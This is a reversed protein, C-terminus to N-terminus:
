VFNFAFGVEADFLSKGGYNERCLDCFGPQASSFGGYYSYRGLATFRGVTYNAQLTGRWDPREDQIGIATVSDLLGPETSGADILVQPLPDVRVIKNKTYNVSANLDLTSGASSPVRLNATLDVGQTKTDLGNTFYQVGQINGFGAASLIALTAADDFTAGLLIRHNIKIHFYDATITLNQTPSVAMGGSFNIATEDRLPKAGLALSAPHDVPFIGLDIFQGAIVNTVVKSFGVQSLGPARFGSSVAGRLTLRKSPQFRVAAKGTVRSGFDSYREFRGAVNALVQPTLNTEADAYFGFNTRHRDTADSPTFGPFVSSGAPALGSSDQALHFGNIYSALEGERIVYRERRFTAGFALNVAAPLGLEVPKAVNVGTVLEERLVRGAFFSTQNPIGPDDATGLVGDPGPACPNAPDLCPGLSANNSNTIGYDFHNHGFEGGLDYSWGSVVGRVGGAASYDTAKGDITPLFGLPYIEPWNRASDFYRRYGNGSGDRHSFGGFSYIEATGADNLPLRFNAFSLVDKELGDGWHHNPQPVPNRKEVVQGISNISDPVGTGAVEFPDAWARNTPQRDRFEGFLGLSGRGLKIGWGGNADINTGDDPYNDAVYRGVDGSLFPTFEGEKIVLNVVGAIADSGYQASAGDRLVEIRDVASVPLANLDVGSSGAGMGYTFNNVLATQHRRWGNVLVLTHDPSLGRLTFPRVIDGADTVSQRPFNISPAVAQLIQSTEMTGQQQLIQAPFVDVPVALEESATHRARSGIVVDIPALQVASRGLRFDQRAADGAVVTVPASAAQYGILRARVTQRGAPVGRLEYDGQSGSTTRLNTGEVTISANPLPTGSSDAVTGRIAGGQAVLPAPLTLVLGVIMRVVARRM